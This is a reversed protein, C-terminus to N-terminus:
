CCARLLFAMPAESASQLSRALEGFFVFYFRWWWLRKKKKKKEREKNEKKKQNIIKQKWGSYRFICIQFHLDGFDLKQISFAKQKLWDWYINRSIRPPFDNKEKRARPVSSKPTSQKERSGFLFPFLLLTKRDRRNTKKKKKKVFIIFLQALKPQFFLTTIQSICPLSSLKVFASSYLFVCVELNPELHCFFIFSIFLSSFFYFFARKLKCQPVVHESPIKWPGGLAM